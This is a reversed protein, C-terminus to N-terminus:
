LSRNKPAKIVSLEIVIKVLSLIHVSKMRTLNNMREFECTCHIFTLYILKINNKGKYKQNQIINKMNLHNHQITVKCYATPRSRIIGLYM